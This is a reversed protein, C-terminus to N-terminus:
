YQFINPEFNTWIFENAERIEPLNGGFSSSAVTIRDLFHRKWGNELLEDYLETEYGCVLVKGKVKLLEQVMRRHDDVTFHNEYHKKLKKSGERPKVAYPPDIMFFVKPDNKYATITDFLCRRHVEVDKMIWYFGHLNDLNDYFDAVMHENVFPDKSWYFNKMNGVISWQCAQYTYVARLLPDVGVKNWGKVARNFNARNYPVQELIYILNDIKNRCKLVNMLDCLGRGIDSYVRRVGEIGMLVKGSGGCVEVYTDLDYKKMYLSIRGHLEDALKAKGGLYSMLSANEM